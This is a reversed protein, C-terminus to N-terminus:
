GRRHDSSLQRAIVDTNTWSRKSYDCKSCMYVQRAPNSMASHCNPCYATEEFTGDDRRKFAFGEHVEYQAQDQRRSLQGKLGRNETELEAQRTGMEAVRAELLEVREKLLRNNDEQMEYTRELVAFNKADLVRGQLEKLLALAGM